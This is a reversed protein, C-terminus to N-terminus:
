WGRHCYLGVDHQFANSFSYGPLACATKRVSVYVSVYVFQVCATLRVVVSWTWDTSPAAPVSERFINETTFPRSPLSEAEGMRGSNSLCHTALVSQVKKSSFIWVIRGSEFSLLLRRLMLGRVKNTLSDSSEGTLSSWSAFIIELHLGVDDLTSGMGVSTTRSQKSTKSGTRTLMMLLLRWVAAM